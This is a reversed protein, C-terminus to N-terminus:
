LDNLDFGLNKSMITWHGVDFGMRFAIKLDFGM